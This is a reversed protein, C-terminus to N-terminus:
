VMATIDKGERLIDKMMTFVKTKTKWEAPTYGVIDMAAHISRKMYYLQAGRDLLDMSKFAPSIVIIDYDSDKRATGKARSGYLIIRAPAFKKKVDRLFPKILTIDAKKGM